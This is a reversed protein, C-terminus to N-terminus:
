LPDGDKDSVLRCVVALQQAVADWVTFRCLCPLSMEQQGCAVTVTESARRRTSLNYLTISLQLPELIGLFLHIASVSVLVPRCRGAGPQMSSPPLPPVRGCSHVEQGHAWQWGPHYARLVGGGAEARAGTGETNAAVSRGIRGPLEPPDALESPDIRSKPSQTTARESATRTSDAHGFGAGAGGSRDLVSCPATPLPVPSQEFFYHLRSWRCFPQSFTSLALRTHPESESSESASPMGAPPSANSIILLLDREPLGDRGSDWSGTLTETAGSGVPFAFDDASVTSATSGRRGGTLPREPGATDAGEWGKEGRLGDSTGPAEGHEIQAEGNEVQQAEEQFELLVGNLDQKQAEPEPEDGM